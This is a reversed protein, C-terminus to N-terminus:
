VQLAKWYPPTASRMTKRLMLVQYVTNELSIGYIGIDYNQGSSNEINSIWAASRLLVQDDIEFGHNKFLHHIEQTTIPADWHKNSYLIKQGQLVALGNPFAQFADNFWSDSIEQSGLPPLPALANHPMRKFRAIALSVDDVLDFCGLMYNQCESQLATKRTYIYSQIGPPAWPEVFSLVKGDTYHKMVKCDDEFYAKYDPFDRKANTKGDCMGTRKLLCRDELGPSFYFYCFDTDFNIDDLNSPAKKSFIVGFPYHEFASKCLLNKNM